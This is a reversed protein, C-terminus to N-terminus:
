FKMKPYNLNQLSLEMILQINPGEIKEQARLCSPVLINKSILCQIENKHHFLFYSIVPIADM